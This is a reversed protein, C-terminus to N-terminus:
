FLRKGIAAELEALKNEYDTIFRYYDIEYNYLTIQNNVLTIFDVKNVKYGAIASQLSMTSQPIIGTSFLEIQQENEELETLIDKIQFFLNNKMSNYQETAKRINAAEEAVKRSEKNKYWLPINITVFASVFDTREVASTDDRQGYGIGVDFDPYFDKKAFKYAFRYRNILHRMGLLVPRNEVAIQQLGEFTLNFGTQRIEGIDEFPMQVPRNLLTNLRAIATQKKQRLSILHDIMRSLEVQSKLVDQQLGKGVAYKTEAIKIFEKLLAKNNETIEIAKNIFSLNNYVVKVQRVIDNKKEMYEKKVIELEQGAMAGKLALKGPFPFKQMITMQKQTMPEQNFSFTDLPVNVISLKLRPDDLSEAQSPRERYVRIKEEFAKLEPNNKVAEGILGSLREKYDPGGAFVWGANIVLLSILISVAIKMKM